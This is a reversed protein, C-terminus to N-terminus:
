RGTLVGVLDKKNLQQNIVAADTAPSSPSEAFVRVSMGQGASAENCFCCCARIPITFIKILRAAVRATTLHHQASFRQQHLTSARQYVYSPSRPLLFKLVSRQISYTTVFVAVYLCVVWFNPLLFDLFDVTAMTLGFLINLFVGKRTEGTFTKLSNALVATRMARESIHQFGNGGEIVMTQVAAYRDVKRAVTEGLVVTFGIGAISPIPSNILIGICTLTSSVLFLLLSLNKSFWYSVTGLVEALQVLYGYVISLSVTSLSIHAFNLHLILQSEKFTGTSHPPILGLLWMFVLFHLIAYCLCAAGASLGAMIRFTQARKRSKRQMSALCSDNTTALYSQFSKVTLRIVLFLLYLEILGGVLFIVAVAASSKM